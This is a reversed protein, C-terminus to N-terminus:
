SSLSIGDTLGSAAAMTERLDLRELSPAVWPLREGPARDAAAVTDPPDTAAEKEKPTM